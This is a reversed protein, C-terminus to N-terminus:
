DPESSSVRMGSSAEAAAPPQPLEHQFLFTTNGVVLSDGHTLRQDGLVIHDNLLTGNRSDMDRVFWASDDQILLSHNRSMHPDIIQISNDPGRGISVINERLFFVLGENEGTEIRLQAYPQKSQETM